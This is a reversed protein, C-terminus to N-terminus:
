HGHTVWDDCHLIEDGITTAGGHGTYVVTDGPLKALKESISELITGPATRARPWHVFRCCTSRSCAPAFM